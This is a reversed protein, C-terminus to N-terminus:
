VTRILWVLLARRVKVYARSEEVTLGRQTRPKTLRGPYPRAPRSSGVTAITAGTAVSACSARSCRTDIATPAQAAKISTLELGRSTDASLAGPPFSSKLVQIQDQTSMEKGETHSKAPRRGSSPPFFFPRERLHSRGKIRPIRVNHWSVNTRILRITGVLAIIFSGIHRPAKVVVEGTRV